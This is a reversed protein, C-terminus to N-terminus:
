KKVQRKITKIPTTEKGTMQDKISQITIELIGLLELTNFGNNTRTLLMKEDDWKLTYTKM